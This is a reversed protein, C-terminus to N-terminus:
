LNLEVMRKVEESSQLEMVIQPKINLHNFIQNMFRGGATEPSLMILPIDRLMEVSIHSRNALPHTPAVIMEFTDFYLVSTELSHSKEFLYAIGMDVAGSEV